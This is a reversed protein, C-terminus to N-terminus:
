FIRFLLLSAKEFVFIFKTKSNINVISNIIYKIFSETKILDSGIIFYKSSEDEYSEKVGNAKAYSEIDSRYKLFTNLRLKIKIGWFEERQFKIIGIESDDLSSKILVTQNNFSKSLVSLVKPLYYINKDLLILNKSKNYEIM